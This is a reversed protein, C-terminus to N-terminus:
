SKIYILLEENLSNELNIIQRIMHEGLRHGESLLLIGDETLLDRALVMNQKLETASIM